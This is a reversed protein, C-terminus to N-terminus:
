PSRASVSVSIPGLPCLRQGLAPTKQGSPTTGHLKEAREADNPEANRGARRDALTPPMAM